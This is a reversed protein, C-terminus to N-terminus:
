NLSRDDDPAPVAVAARRKKYPRRKTPAKSVAATKMAALEARLQAVEASLGGEAPTEPAEPKAGLLENIRDFEEEDRAILAEGVATAFGLEVHEQTALVAVTSGVAPVREDCYEARTHVDTKKNKVLWAVRDAETFTKSISRPWPFGSHGPLANASWRPFNEESTQPTRPINAPHPM